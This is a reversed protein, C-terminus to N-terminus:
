PPNTSNITLAITPMLSGYMLHSYGSGRHESGFGRIRPTRPAARRPPALLPGPTALRPAVELERSRSAGARSRTAPSSDLKPSGATRVRGLYRNRGRDAEAAAGSRSLGMPVNAARLRPAKTRIAFQAAKELSQIEQNKAMATIRFPHQLMVPRHTGGKAKSVSTRGARERVGSAPEPRPRGRAGDLLRKGFFLVLSM